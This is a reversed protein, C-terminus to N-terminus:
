NLKPILCEIKNPVLFKILYSCSATSLSLMISSKNNCILMYYQISNLSIQYYWSLVITKKKEKKKKKSILHYILLCLQYYWFYFYILCFILYLKFKFYKFYDKSLSLLYDHVFLVVFAMDFQNKLIFHLNSELTM